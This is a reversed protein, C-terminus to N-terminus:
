HLPFHCCVLGKGIKRFKPEVKKCINKVYLCRPHFRCGKPPNIPSPIEGRLIIRDRIRSPDPTPISSLLAQSYPHLQRRFFETVEGIEVIKGVYMVVVYQCMFEIVSLHHSIFLYTLDYKKQLDKLLNLIQAQVSVDLASTPEDLVIFEPRVSLARAIGIRQRQGGSFEHPYRSLHESSLGVQHLLSEVRNKLETGRIGQNLLPEGVINKVIMRPNLSAYPDQFVVQMKKRYEYMSKKDLECINVGNYFIKGETPEILRLILRGVTTKGSGSEGVLGVSKGKHIAFNIGDVARVVQTTKGFLGGRIPFHKTLNSVKILIM